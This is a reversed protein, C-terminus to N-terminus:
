TLGCHTSPSRPSKVFSVDSELKGYHHYLKGTGWPESAMTSATTTTVRLGTAMMITTTLRTTWMDTTLMPQSHFPFEDNKKEKRESMVYM